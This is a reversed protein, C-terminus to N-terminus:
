DNKCGSGGTFSGPGNVVIIGSLDNFLVNNRELLEQLSLIFYDTLKGDQKIIEDLVKDDKFLALHLNIYHTDIFLTYM